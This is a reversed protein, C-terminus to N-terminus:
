QQREILKQKRKPVFARAQQPQMATDATLSARHPGPSTCAAPDFATDFAVLRATSATDATVTGSIEFTRASEPLIQSLLVLRKDNAPSLDAEVIVTTKFPLVFEVPFVELQEVIATRPPVSVTVTDAQTITTQTSTASATAVTTTTTTSVSGGISFTDSLKLGFSGQGGVAHSVSNTLTVSASQQFAKSLSFSFQTPISACNNAIASDALMHDPLEKPPQLQGFTIPAVVVARINSAVLKHQTTTVVQRFIPREHSEGGHQGGVTEFHDIVQSVVTVPVTPQSQMASAIQQAVDTVTQGCSLVAAALWFFAVAYARKAM